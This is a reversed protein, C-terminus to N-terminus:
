KRGIIELRREEYEEANLYGLQYMKQIEELQQQVYPDLAPAPAPSPAGEEMGLLLLTIYLFTEGAIGTIGFLLNLPRNDIFYEINALFEFMSISTIALGISGVLIAFLKNPSKKFASLACLTAAAALPMNFLIAVPIESEYITIAYYTFITHAAAIAIYMIAKFPAPSPKEYSNIMFLLMTIPAALEFLMYFFNRFSPFEVIPSYSGDYSYESYNWEYGIFYSLCSTGILALAIITFIKLKPNKAYM